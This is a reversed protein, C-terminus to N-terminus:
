TNWGTVEDRCSRGGLGVGREASCIGCVWGAPTPDHAADRPGNSRHREQGDSDYESREFTPAQPLKRPLRRAPPALRRSTRSSNSTFAAGPMQSRGQAVVPSARRTHLPARNQVTSRPRRLPPPAQSRPPPV